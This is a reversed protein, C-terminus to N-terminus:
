DLLLVFIAIRTPNNVWLELEETIDSKQIISIQAM